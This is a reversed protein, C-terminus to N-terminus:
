IGHGWIVVFPALALVGLCLPLSCGLAMMALPAFAMLVSGGWILLDSRKWHRLSLNNVLFVSSIYACVSLVAFGLTLAFSLKSRGELFEGSVQLGAGMAVISSFVLIHLYGWGFARDRRRKLFDGFPRLFYLWWCGFALGVCATGTLIPEVSWGHLDVMAGVMAVAGAVCEGLAIIVLLSYREAIHHAHWPPTGWRRYFAIPGLFEICGLAVMFFLAQKLPPTWFILAIWLVQAIFVAAANALLARRRSRDFHGARIWLFIMVLRMIVYGLVMVSNDLRLGEAISQFLRPVGLAFVIVGVMHIMTAMRFLIGDADYSSAFWSYNMWAWCIALMSIAFSLSAAFVEGQVLLRSMQQSVVALSIAFTLDFFLELPTSVRHEENIDRGSWGHVHHAPLRDGEIRHFYENVVVIAVKWPM